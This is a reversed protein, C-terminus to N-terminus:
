GHPRFIRGERLGDCLEEYVERLRPRRHDGDLARLIRRALPGEELITGLPGAWEEWEPEGLVAKEVLHSWVEGATARGRGRMGLVELYEPAEVVAREGDVVTAELIGGLIETGIGDPDPGDALSGLSLARVAGAVAGVVALDARPCEQADIVRIEITGRGFRAIAGRANVWEQRLIGGPDLPELDRYIPALIEEEYQEPTRVPEPVVRGTVSPVRRANDRYARLREDLAGPARGDRIPSAATLAPILPLVARIARHLRGFEEPGRFPLNLHTSQLNAWGHGATGFIRDFARYVDNYEHPWLVRDEPDMWPHMGGPMLRAGSPALIEEARRVHAQFREALGGLAPAPGNTKLELVHLVLENSWAVDGGEWESVPAGAVEEILRDCWPRIELSGEDVIMYELEVGYAEFLGPATDPAPLSAPGLEGSRVEDM